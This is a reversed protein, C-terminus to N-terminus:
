VLRNELKKVDENFGQTSFFWVLITQFIKKLSTEDFEAVSVLNVHRLFRPTVFTRGGGPPGMASIFIIDVLNKFPKDDKMDYWGGSDLM